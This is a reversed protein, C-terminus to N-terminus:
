SRECVAGPSIDSPLVLRGPPPPCECIHGTCTYGATFVGGGKKKLQGTLLSTKDITTYM